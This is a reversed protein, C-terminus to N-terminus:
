APAGAAPAPPPAPAAPAPAGGATAEETPSQYVDEDAGTEYAHEIDEADITDGELEISGKTIDQMLKKPM